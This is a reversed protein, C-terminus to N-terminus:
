VYEMHKNVIVEQKNNDEKKDYYEKYREQITPYQYEYTEKM